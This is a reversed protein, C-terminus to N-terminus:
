RTSMPSLPLRADHRAAAPVNEYAENQAVFILGRRQEDLMEANLEGNTVACLITYWIASCVGAVMLIVLLWEVVHREEAASCGPLVQVGQDTTAPALLVRDV